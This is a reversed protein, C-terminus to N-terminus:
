LSRLFKVAHGLYHLPEQGNYEVTIAGRYHQEELIALLEPFDVSGQGLPTELVRRVDLDHLADRARVHLVHRGLIRMADIPSFGHVLLNAPDFDIGITGEPLCKLLEDMREGSETGTQAALNAGANKAYNGLDSLTSVLLNWRPDDTDEPIRGIHNTVVSAGLKYAMNMAQKTADVRRDLDDPTDYGRRTRFSVAAVRLQYDDLLKRLDRVATNSLDRPQFEGRADLEISRAGLEAAKPIALRLPMRLSPLHIGVKLQLM